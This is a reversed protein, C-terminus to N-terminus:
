PCRVRTTVPAPGITLRDASVALNLRMTQANGEVSCAGEVSWSNPGANAIRTFTCHAEHQDYGNRTMVLPANELEQGVSCQAPQSAWTGVYNPGAKAAAPRPVLVVAGLLLVSAAAFTTTSLNM